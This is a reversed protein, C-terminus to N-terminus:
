APMLVLWGALWLYGNCAHCAPLAYCGEQKNEEGLGRMLCANAPMCLCAHNYEGTSCLSFIYAVYLPIEEYLCSTMTGTLGCLFAREEPHGM